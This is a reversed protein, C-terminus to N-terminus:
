FKHGGVFFFDEDEARAIGATTMHGLTNKPCSSAIEELDVARAGLRFAFDMRQCDVGELLDPDIGACVLGLMEVFIEISSDIGHDGNAAISVLGAGSEGPPDGAVVPAKFVRRAGLAVIFGLKIGEAADSIFDFEDEFGVCCSITLSKAM